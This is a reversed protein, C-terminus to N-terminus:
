RVAASSLAVEYPKGVVSAYGTFKLAEGGTGNPVSRIDFRAVLPDQERVCRSQPETRAYPLVM